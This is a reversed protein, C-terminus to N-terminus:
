IEITLMLPPGKAEGTSIALTHAVSMMMLPQLIVTETLPLGPGVGASSALAHAM